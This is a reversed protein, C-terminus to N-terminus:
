CTRGLSPFIVELMVRIQVLYGNGSYIEDLKGFCTGGTKATLRNNQDIASLFTYLDYGTLKEMASTIIEQEMQESSARYLIAWGPMYHGWDDQKLRELFTASTNPDVGDRLINNSEIYNMMGQLQQKANDVEYDAKLLIFTTIVLNLAIFIKRTTKM